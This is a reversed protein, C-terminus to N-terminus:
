ESLFMVLPKGSNQMNELICQQWHHVDQVKSVNLSAACSGVKSTPVHTLLIHTCAKRGTCNFAIKSHAQSM